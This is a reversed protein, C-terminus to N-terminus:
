QRDFLMRNIYATWVEAERDAGFIRIYPEDSIIQRCAFDDSLARFFLKEVTQKWTQGHDTSVYLAADTASSGDANICRGGYLFLKDDYYFLHADERPRTLTLDDSIKAWYLGDMTSWTTSCASGDACRGSMVIIFHVGTVTHNDAIAFHSSPFGDPVEDGLTWQGDYKVFFLRDAKRAIGVLANDTLAPRGELFGFVATLEPATEDRKWVDLNDSFYCHGQNDLVCATSGLVCFTETLLSADEPLTISAARADSWIIGDDSLHYAPSEGGALLAFPAASHGKAIRYDGPAPLTGRRSMQLSDPDQLHVNVNIDYSYSNKEDETTYVLRVPKSFDFSDTSSGKVGDYTVTGTGSVTLVSPMLKTVDSGFPFSDPNYIKHAFNDIYFTYDEFDPFSDFGFHTICIDTYSRVDVSCGVPGILAACFLLAAATARTNKLLSM